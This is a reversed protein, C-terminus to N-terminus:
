RQKIPRQIFLLGKMIYDTLNAITIIFTFNLDQSSVPNIQSLFITSFIKTFILDQKYPRADHNLRKEIM